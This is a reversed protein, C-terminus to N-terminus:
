EKISKSTFPPPLEECGTNPPCLEGHNLSEFIKDPRKFFGTDNLHRNSGQVTDQRTAIWFLSIQNPHDTPVTRPRTNYAGLYIRIGDITDADKLSTYIYEFFERSFWVSKTMPRMPNGNYIKNYHDIYTLAEKSPIINGFEIKNDITDSKAPLATTGSKSIEKNDEDRCSTIGIILITLLKIIRLM